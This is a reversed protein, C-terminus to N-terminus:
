LRSFFLCLYNKFIFMKIYWKSFASSKVGRPCSSGGIVVRVCRTGKGGGNSATMVESPSLRFVPPAIPVLHGGILPGDNGGLGTSSSGNNTLVHPMSQFGPFSNHSGHASDSGVFNSGVKPLSLVKMTDSDTTSSRKAPSSSGLADELDTLFDDISGGSQRPKSRASAQPKNHILSTGDPYLLHKDTTHASKSINNSFVFAPQPDARNKHDEDDDDFDNHMEEFAESTKVASTKQQPSDLM